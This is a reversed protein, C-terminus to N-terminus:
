VSGTSPPMVIVQYASPQRVPAVAECRRDRAQSRRAARAPKAQTAPSARYRSPRLQGPPQARCPSKLLGRSGAAPMRDDRDAVRQRSEAGNRNVRWVKQGQAATVPERVVLQPKLELPDRGPPRLQARSARRCERPEAPLEVPPQDDAGAAVAKDHPPHERADRAFDIRAVSRRPSIRRHRSVRTAIAAGARQRTSRPPRHPNFCM